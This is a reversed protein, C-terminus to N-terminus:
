QGFANPMTNKGLYLPHQLRLYLTNTGDSALLWQREM